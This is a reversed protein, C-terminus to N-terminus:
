QSLGGLSTSTSQEFLLIKACTGAGQKAIKSLHKKGIQFIIIFKHNRINPTGTKRLMKRRIKGLAELSRKQIGLLLALLTKTISKEVIETLINNKAVRNKVARDGTAGVNGM